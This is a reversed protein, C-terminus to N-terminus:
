FTRIARILPEFLFFEEGQPTLIKKQVLREVIKMKGKAVLPEFFLANTTETGAFDDIEKHLKKLCAWQQRTKNAQSITGKLFFAIWEEWANKESICFLNQFYELRLNEFYASLFLAPQSLLKKKAAFVPILVRAVRGNGDMFPHIILFQAFGIALQVIPDVDQKELYADLNRLLPHIRPAPPPYFYADEMPCGEPGIWNQRNRVRGIDHPKSGNKKIFSHVRSYFQVGLKRRRGWRIGADLGEKARIIKQLLAARNEPALKDIEYRIVESYDSYIKQSRLSSVAELWRLPELIAPANKEDRLAEDLRAVAARADGILTILRRWDLDKIPLLRPRCTKIRM